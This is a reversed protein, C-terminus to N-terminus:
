MVGLIWGELDTIKQEKGTMPPGLYVDELIRGCRVEKLWRAIAYADHQDASRNEQPYGINDAGEVMAVLTCYRIGGIEKLDNRHYHGQFVALVNGSQELVRRVEAANKVGYHGEVDLRQHVFAITKHTTKELDGKLWEIEAAPINSDTWNFNKRGYPEGDSRFCADLVVFHYGGV